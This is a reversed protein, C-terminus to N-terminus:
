MTLVHSNVNRNGLSGKTVARSGLEIIRPNKIEGIKEKFLAFINVSAAKENNSNPEDRVIREGRCPVEAFPLELVGESSNHGAHEIGSDLIRSLELFSRSLTKRLGHNKYYKIAKGIM